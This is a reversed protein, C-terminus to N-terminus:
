VIWFGSPHFARHRLIRWQKHYNDPNLEALTGMSSEDDPRLVRLHFSVPGEEEDYYLSELVRAWPKWWPAGRVRDRDMSLVTVDRLAPMHWRLTHCCWAEFNGSNRGELVLRQIRTLDVDPVRGVADVDFNVWQHTAANQYVHLAKVYGHKELYARSEGCAHFLAPARPPNATNRHKTGYIVLESPEISLRWIEQRLEPPLRPFPHFQFTEPAAEERFLNSQLPQSSRAGETQYCKPPIPLM